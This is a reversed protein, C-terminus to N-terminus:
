DNLLCPDKAVFYDKELIRTSINNPFPINVNEQPDMPLIYWNVQELDRATWAPNTTRPQETTVPCSPYNVAHSDPLKSKNPKGLRESLGLLNSELDVPNTMLNGGWGQLRIFPDEMFYPKLGNGPVNVAYRGPGTSEQVQKTIRCPDDYFRTFSM